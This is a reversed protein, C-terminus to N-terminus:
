SILYPLVCRHSILPVRLYTARNFVNSQYINNAPQSTRVTFFSHGLDQIHQGLGRAANEVVVHIELGLDGNKVKRRVSRLGSTLM